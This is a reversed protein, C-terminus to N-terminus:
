AAFAETDEVSAPAPEAQRRRLALLTVAALALVIVVLGYIEATRQLGISGIAVGAVISPISFALYGVVFISALLGARYGSAVGATITAVAGLFAAGFGFGTVVAAVFLATVSEAFLAAVTGAVGVAFVLAGVALSRAPAAKGMALSGLVGTGNIALILLGGALHNEIGFVDVLLSPGLSAYLGGVAWCAVLIPLAGLFPPRNAPPVHVRPRLSSVAGPLRASTEPLLLLTGVSALVFVVTLVGFV